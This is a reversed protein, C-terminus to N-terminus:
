ERRVAGEACVGHPPEAVATVLIDVEAPEELDRQENAQEEPDKNDAAGQPRGDLATIRLPRQEQEEQERRDRDAAEVERREADPPVRGQRDGLVPAPADNVQPDLAEELHEGGHDDREQKRPEPEDVHHRRSAGRDERRRDKEGAAHDSRQMVEVEAARRGDRQGEARHEARELDHREHKEAVSAHSFQRWVRAV